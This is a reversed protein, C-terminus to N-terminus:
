VVSLLDINIYITAYGKNQVFVFYRITKGDISRDVDQFDEYVGLFNETVGTEKYSTLRFQKQGDIEAMAVVKDGVSSNLLAVNLKDDVMLRGITADFENYKVNKSIQNYGGAFTVQGVGTERIKFNTSLKFNKGNITVIESETIAQQLAPAFVMIKGNSDVYFARDVIENGNPILVSINENKTFETDGFKLLDLSKLNKIEGLEVYLRFDPIKEYIDSASYSKNTSLTDEDDLKLFMQNVVDSTNKIDLSMTFTPIYMTVMGPGASLKPESEFNLESYFNQYEESSTTYEEIAYGDVSSIEGGDITVVLPESYNRSSDMVLGSGTIYCGSGDYKPQAYEVMTANLTCNKITHVGSKTYYATLGTFSCNEFNYVYGAPLYTGATNKGIFECNKFNLTFYESKFNGNTQVVSSTGVFKINDVNVEFPSNQSADGKIFLACDLIHMGDVNIEGRGNSSTLTVKRVGFSSDFRVVRQLTHGNLDLTIESYKASTCSFLETQMDVATPLGIDGVLVVRNAYGFSERLGAFSKVESIIDGKNEIEGSGLIKKTMIITGNNIIEGNNTLEFDDFDVVFGEPITLSEMNSITLNQTVKVGNYNQNQIAGLVGEINSVSLSSKTIEFGVSVSGSIAKSTEVATIKVTATGANINNLYEVSYDDKSIEVGDVTLTVTPTKATGDYAVQTFGLSVMNSSLTIPETGCATFLVSGFVVMMMILASTLFKRAM